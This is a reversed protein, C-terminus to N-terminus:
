QLRRRLRLFRADNEGAASYVYYGPGQRSARMESMAKRIRLNEVEWGDRGLENLFAELEKPPAARRFPDRTRTPDLKEGGPREKLVRYEYRELPPHTQLASSEKLTIGIIFGILATLAAGAHHKSVTM